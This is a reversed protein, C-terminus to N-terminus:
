VRSVTRHSGNPGNGSTAVTADRYMWFVMLGLLVLYMYIYLIIFLDDSGDSGNFGGLFLLAEGSFIKKCVRATYSVYKGHAGGVGLVLPDSPDSAMVM